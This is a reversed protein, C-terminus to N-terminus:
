EVEDDLMLIEILVPRWLGGHSPESGSPDFTIDLTLLNTFQLLDTVDFCMKEPEDEDYLPSLPVDNLRAAISGGVDELVIRVREDPDLGTPRQFRRRFRATGGCQGFLEQWSAPLTVRRVATQQPDTGGDAALWAVEWPGRLRIWHRDYPEWDM